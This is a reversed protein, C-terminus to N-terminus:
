GMLFHILLFLCPLAIAAEIRLKLNEVFRYDEPGYKYDIYIAWLAGIYIVIFSLLISYGYYKGNVIGMDSSVAYLIGGTIVLVALIRIWYRSHSIYRKEYDSLGKEFIYTKVLSCLLIVLIADCLPSRWFMAFEETGM